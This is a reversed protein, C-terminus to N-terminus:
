PGRFEKINMVTVYIKVNLNKTVSMWSVDFVTFGSQLLVILKNAEAAKAM